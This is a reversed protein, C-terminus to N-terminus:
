DMIRFSHRLKEIDQDSVGCDRYNEEWQRVHTICESILQEALQDTIGFYKSASRANELSAIKGYDGIQMTLHYTETTIISPVVDFLPSLRWKQRGAYLFGHNRMHEDSNYVLINFIMRKYLEIKDQLPEVSFRNIAECLALYSWQQYDQEHSGTATLGSIYPIPHERQNKQYRDFREILYVSRGGIITHDISIVNLGCRKALSM